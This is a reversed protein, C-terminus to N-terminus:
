VRERVHHYVVDINKTRAASVPDEIFFLAAHNDIGIPICGPNLQMGQALAHLYQVEKAVDGM